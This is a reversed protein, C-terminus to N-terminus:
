MARYCCNRGSSAYAFKVHFCLECIKYFHILNICAAFNSVTSYMTMM